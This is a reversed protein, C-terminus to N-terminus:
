EKTEVLHPFPYSFMSTTFADFFVASAFLFRLSFTPLAVFVMV